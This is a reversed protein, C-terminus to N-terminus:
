LPNVGRNTRDTQPHAKWGDDEWLGIRWSPGLNGRPRDFSRDWARCSRLNEGAAMGKTVPFYKKLGKVQLLPENLTREERM